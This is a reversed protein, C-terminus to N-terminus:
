AYGLSRGGTPSALSLPHVLLQLRVDVDHDVAGVGLRQGREPRLREAVAVDPAALLVAQQQRGFPGVRPHDQLPHRLGLQALHADMEVQPHGVDKGLDLSELLQASPADVDALAVVDGPNRHGIGLAVLEADAGARGEVDSGVGVAPPGDVADAQGLVDVIGAMDVGVMTGTPGVHHAAVFSDVGAGSGVAVVREGQQPPRLSFPNGVGAFSEVARDPLRDLVTSDYGLRVTTDSL